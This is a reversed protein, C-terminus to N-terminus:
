ELINKLKKQFGEPFDEEKLILVSYGNMEAWKIKMVDLMQSHKFNAQTQHFYPIFEYHQRPNIEIILKIPSTICIDVFLNHHDIKIPFEQIVKFLSFNDKIFTVVSKHFQSKHEEISFNFQM